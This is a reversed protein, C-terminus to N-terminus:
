IREVKNLMWPLGSETRRKDRLEVGYVVAPWCRGTYFYVNKHRENAHVAVLEIRYVHGFLKALLSWM